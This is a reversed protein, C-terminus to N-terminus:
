VELGGDLDGFQDPLELLMLLPDVAPKGTLSSIGDPISPELRRILSDTM